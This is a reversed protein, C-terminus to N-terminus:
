KRSKEIKFIMNSSNCFKKFKSNNSTFNLGNKLHIFILNLYYENVASLVENIASLIYFYLM